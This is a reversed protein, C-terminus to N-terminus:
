LPKIYDNSGNVFKDALVLTAFCVRRKKKNPVIGNNPGNGIMLFAPLCTFTRITLILMAILMMTQNTKIPNTM